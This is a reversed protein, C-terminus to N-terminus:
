IAGREKLVQLARTKVAPDAAGNNAIRALAQNSLPKLEMLIPDPAAEEAPKAEPAKAEAPKITAQTSALHGLTKPKTGPISDKFAKLERLLGLTMKPDNTRKAFDAVTQWETRKELPAHKNAFEILGDISGVEAEADAVSTDPAAKAQEAQYLERQMSLGYRVTAEDHGTTEGVWKIEDPDFEIGDVFKQQLMDFRGSDAARLLNAQQEVYDGLPDDSSDTESDNTDNSDEPTADDADSENSLPDSQSQSDSPQQPDSSTVTESDEASTVVADTPQEGLSDNGIGGNLSDDM